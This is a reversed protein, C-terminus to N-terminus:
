SHLKCYETLARHLDALLDAREQMPEDRFSGNNLDGSERSSCEDDLCNLREELESVRDQLLLIVRASATGFKRFILFDHDSAIVKSFTKYGLYKWPKLEVENPPQRSYDGSCTAEKQSFAQQLMAIAAM